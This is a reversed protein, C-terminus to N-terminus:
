AFAGGDARLVAGNVFSAEPSGLFAIVSAIEAPDAKRGELGVTPKSVRPEPVATDRFLATMGTSVGGPCVVNIRIGESGYELALSRMMTVLGGKSAAYVASYPWGELGAISSVAVVCGRTRRLHPIAAQTLLFPARLNIDLVRQWEALGVAESAGFQGVGAVLALLDIRGWRGVARAIVRDAAQPEAVDVTLTAVTADASHLHSLLAELGITDRDVALVQDGRAALKEVTARGIGSAAGTVVAVRPEDM